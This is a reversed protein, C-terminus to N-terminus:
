FNHDQVSEDGTIIKKLLIPDDNFMTLMEKNLFLLKAVIKVATRKMGVVDMFIAQCSGFSIGVDDAVERIIIRCNNLIIKEM